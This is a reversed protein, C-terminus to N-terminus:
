HLGDAKRQLVLSAAKCVDNPLHYPDAVHMLSSAIADSVQEFFYAVEQETVERNRVRQRMEIIIDDTSPM